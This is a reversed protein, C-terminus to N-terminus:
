LDEPSKFGAKKTFLPPMAGDLPSWAFLVGPLDGQCLNQEEM